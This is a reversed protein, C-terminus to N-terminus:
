KGIQHQTRNLTPHHISFGSFRGPGDNMHHHLHMMVTPNMM